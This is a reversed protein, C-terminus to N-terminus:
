TRLKLCIKLNEFPVKLDELSTGLKELRELEEVAKLCLNAKWSGYVQSCELCHMIYYECKKIVFETNRSNLSINRLWFYDCIFANCLGEFTLNSELPPLCCYDDQVASKLAEEAGQCTPYKQQLMMQLYCVDTLTLGLEKTNRTLFLNYFSGMRANRFARQIAKFLEINQKVFSATVDDAFHLDCFTGDVCITVPPLM